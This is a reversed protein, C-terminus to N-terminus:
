NANCLASIQLTEAIWIFKVRVSFGSRNIATFITEKPVLSRCNQKLNEKELLFTFRIVTLIIDLKLFRQALSKDTKRLTGVEKCISAVNM